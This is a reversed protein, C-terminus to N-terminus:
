GNPSGGYSGWNVDWNRNPDAGRCLPNATERRTKRWTRDVNWTYEYGDQFFLNKFCMQSM